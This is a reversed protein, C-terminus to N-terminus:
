AAERREAVCPGHGLSGERAREYRVCRAMVQTRVQVLPSHLVLNRRLADVAGAAFTQDSGFPDVPRKRPRAAQGKAKKGGGPDPLVDSDAVASAHEDSLRLASAGPVGAATMLRQLPAPLAHARTM